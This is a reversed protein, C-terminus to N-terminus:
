VGIVIPKDWVNSLDGQDAQSNDWQQKILATLYEPRLDRLPMGVLGREGKLYPQGTRILTLVDQVPDAGYSPGSAGKGHKIYGSMAEMDIIDDHQLQELDVTFYQFQKGRENFPWKNRYDACFKVAGRLLPYQFVTEIRRGKSRRDGLEAPYDVPVIGPRWDAPILGESEGEYMRKTVANVLLSQAAVSELGILHVRWAAGWRILLEIFQTDPMRGAWLDLEWLTNRSDFGLIGLAKLDSRATRTKAWDVLAIRYLGDFYRRANQTDIQWMRRGDFQNYGRFYHYTLQADPHPLHPTNRDDINEPLKDVNYENPVHEVHLLREAEQVPNNDYESDYHSGMNLRIWELYAVSWMQPWASSVVARTQRDRGGASQIRVNWSAYKVDKTFCAYYLYSREGLMTGIWYFRLRNPRLMPLWTKLMTDELKASLEAYREQVKCDPDYEPDDVIMISTRTGRQRSGVTLNELIAGNRLWLIKEQWPKNDRKGQPQLRGFDDIIRANNGIQIMIPRVKRAILKETAHQVVVERHPHAVIELLPKEKSFLTSKGGGRPYAQVNLRFRHYDQLMLLHGPASELLGDEGYFEYQQPRLYYERFFLHAALSAAVTSEDRVVFVRAARQGDPTLAAYDPPLPYYPNNVPSFM